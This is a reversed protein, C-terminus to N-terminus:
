PPDGPSSEPLPPDALWARASIEDPFLRIPYRPRFMLVFPAAIVRLAPSVTVVACAAINASIRPSVALRSADYDLGALRSGTVLLRHQTDSGMLAMRRHFIHEVLDGTVQVGPMFVIRCIDGDLSVQVCQDLPKRSDTM